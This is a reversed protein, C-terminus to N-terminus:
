RRLEIVRDGAKLGAEVKPWLREVTALLAKTRLEGFRVWILRAKSSSINALYFFDEDKSIVVCDNRSAYEWIAADPSGGLDPDLVHQCEVGRSSLFRALATPLRNDVVFKM